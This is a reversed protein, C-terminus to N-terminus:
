ICVCLYANIVKCIVLRVSINIKLYPNEKYHSFRIEDYLAITLHKTYFLGFAFFFFIWKVELEETFAALDEKWLDAPAKLKLTNLETM